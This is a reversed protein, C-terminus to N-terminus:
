RLGIRNGETDEFLAMYGREPSIQRKPILIKGGASEVKSLVNELDDGGNFYLITGQKGPFYFQPHRCIAGSIEDGQQPFLAM